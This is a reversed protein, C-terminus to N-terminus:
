TESEEDEGSILREAELDPETTLEIKERLDDLYYVKTSSAAEMEESVTGRWAYIEVRLGMSKVTEVTNLFDSDAGVLIATEFAPKSALMMLKTALAVDVGKEVYSWWTRGCGRCNHSKRGLKFLEVEYRMENKLFSYFNTQEYRPPETVSAFLFTQWIEGNQELYDHFKKIDIRWGVNRQGYFINSNDIFVITKGRPM